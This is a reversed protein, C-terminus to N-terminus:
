APHATGHQVAGLAVYGRLDDVHQAVGARYPHEGPEVKVGPRQAGTVLDLDVAAPDDHVLGPEQEHGVGLVGDADQGARRGVGDSLGHRGRSSSMAMIAVVIVPNSRSLMRSWSADAPYAWTRSM